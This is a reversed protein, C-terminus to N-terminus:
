RTPLVLLQTNVTLLQRSGGQIGWCGLRIVTWQTDVAVKYVGVSQSNASDVTDVTVKYVGVGQSNASDVTHGSHGTYGLVRVTLVTWQSRTYGLVRVTLVTWQTDVTVKYVGVGVSNASDM